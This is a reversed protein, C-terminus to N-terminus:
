AYSLTYLTVIGSIVTKQEGSYRIKVKLYKDRIRTEKRTTWNDSNNPYMNDTISATQIAKSISSAPYLSPLDSSNVTLTGSFESPINNAVIQPIATGNTSTIWLTADNSYENKQMYPIPRIEVIWRDERYQMNGRLRGVDKLSAAKVHNVLVYQNLNNDYLIETGAMNEYSKGASTQLQYSDYIYNFDDIRKYYWPFLTSHKEQHLYTNIYKPNYSVRSGLNQYLEKTAEQRFYINPKDNAFEYADGVIEYHFSEPASNNSIIHLNDFIKHFGTDANVVFEFEFPHQKGYWYCPLIVDQVDIIGAQGHKWFNTLFSSDNNYYSNDVVALTNCFQGKNAVIYDKWGNLYISFDTNGTVTESLECNIDVYLVEDKPYSSLVKLINGSDIKFYRSYYNKSINFTYIENATLGTGVTLINNTLQRNIVSLTGVTIYGESDSGGSIFVNSLAIGDGVLTDDVSSLHYSTGTLGLKAIAKSTDRNFTFFINNINESYSPVWSYQTIWNGFIENYCINWVNEEVGYLDDYFTFMIDQKFANYHTKVNRIGITPTTEREKLTINENLFRQIKFDSILEFKSTTTRWIKKAVTDVGYVCNPTLLVSDEWTSGYNTSLMRPNLPLVNSTNIFAYGGDGNAAVARENIPILGVGHEFVCIINGNLSKISTISGYERNYDMFNTSKFIRFGNKFADNVFIDSYMIRNDFENKLYPVNPMIYNYRSSLTNSEGANYTGSEPIKSEGGISRQYLPYFARPRVTIGQENYNTTDTDRLSININALCKFTIWHGLRIANVDSRNISNNKELKDLSYNTSWTTEDVIVDNIPTEPDQFNRNMRHTFNGIYCDGRYCVINSTNVDLRDSIAMYPTEDAFRIEFYKDLKSDNYDAIKINVLDGYTGYDEFGLYTGYNGRVLNVAKSILNTKEIYSVRWAEEAEGARASFKQTGSTTLKTGDPVTLIKIKEISKLDSSNTIYNKIYYHRIDGTDTTLPNELAPQNSSKEVVFDAGTFIKNFFPLRLEAEPCLAAEQKCNTTYNVRQEFDHVLLRNKDIFGEIFTHGDSDKVCPLFSSQDLMITFAQALTTPIRKQRVFFYGKCYNKLETILENSAQINIGIPKIGGDVIPNLTKPISVVGKVNELTSINLLYNSEDIPIYQRNSNSDRIPITTVSNVGIDKIGRINFVPSLSFDNLVYVVGLRYIEGPWYGLNYYINLPNYYEYGGSSDQYDKDVWGISTLMSPAPIFRLSLDRLEKYPIEPRSINGLFLRNQCQAQTKVTSAMFYQANIEEISIETVNDYGTITIDCTDSKIVFDRDVKFAYTVPIGDAASTSRTYYVKVYDYATDINNLKLKIIKESNENVTGGRISYPKNVEGVYCTITGSETVYDTENGDADSLRFYFNYNGVKNNGGTEVGLFEVYPIKTIKKFLSTDIDFKDSSERYINTNNNKYREIIKYTNNELCTFRSNIIKPANLDDNLILNVSGDYSPQCEIDVPHHLSFQLESTDFDVLDGARYSVGNITKAESLRLNHLANYEYVLNGQQNFKYFKVSFGNSINISTTTIRSTNLEINM